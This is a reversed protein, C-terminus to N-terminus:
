AWYPKKIKKITSTRYGHKAYHKATKELSGKYPGTAKLPYKSGKRKYTFYYKQLEKGINEGGKIKVLINTSRLLDYIGSYV